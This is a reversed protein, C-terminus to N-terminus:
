YHAKGNDFGPNQARERCGLNHYHTRYNEVIRSLEYNEEIRKKASRGLAARREGPLALLELVADALAAPNNPPVVRGSDGVIDASDGVNTAVCPVAFAMAEGLVNPFAESWSSQCFIDMAQMLDYVDSREGLCVFRDSLQPPVIGSLSPNDLSAERGAMLFLVDPRQEAVTIAARLFGEHDKMPHYRAVHGVVLKDDSIGLTRRISARCEPMPKLVTTDFGNPIVQGRASAFGFAQHQERSLRSNYIITNAHRSFLRNCRIIQRTFLKEHALDYLSHRINWVVPPRQPALKAALSAALNGHYMWGQIVQPQIRRVLSRLRFLASPMFPGHNIKLTHVPVGLARIRAGYSGEDQLSIVISDFHRAGGGSLLNYLAREAGGISLGTIIHLLCM